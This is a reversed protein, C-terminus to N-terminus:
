WKLDKGLGQAKYEIVAKTAVVMQDREGIAAGICVSRNKHPPPIHMLWEGPGDPGVCIGLTFLLHYEKDTVNVTFLKGTACALGPINFTKPQAAFDFDYDGLEIRPIWGAAFQQVQQEMM